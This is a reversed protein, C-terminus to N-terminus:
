VWTFATTQGHGASTDPQTNGSGPASGEQCGCLGQAFSQGDM